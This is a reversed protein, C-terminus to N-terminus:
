MHHPITARRQVFFQPDDQACGPPGRLGLTGSASPKPKRPHSRFSRAKKMSGQGVEPHGLGGKTPRLGMHPGPLLVVRGFLGEGPLLLFRQLPCLLLLRSTGLRYIRFGGASLRLPTDDRVCFILFFRVHAPPLM